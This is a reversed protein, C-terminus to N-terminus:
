QQEKESEHSEGWPPLFRIAIIVIGILITLVPIVLPTMRPNHIPEDSAFADDHREQRGARPAERPNASM